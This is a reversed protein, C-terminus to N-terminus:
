AGGDSKEGNKQTLPISYLQKGNSTSPHPLLSLSTAHDLTMVTKHTQLLIKNFEM